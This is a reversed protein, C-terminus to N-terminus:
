IVVTYSIHMYIFKGQGVGVWGEAAGREAFGIVWLEATGIGWWLNNTMLMMLDGVAPRSLFFFSKSFIHSM